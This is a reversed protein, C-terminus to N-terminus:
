RLKDLDVGAVEFLINGNLGVTVPAYTGNLKAMEAVIARVEKQADLKPGDDILPPADLGPGHVIKGASLVYHDSNAIRMAREYLDDLVANQEARLAKVTHATVENMAQWYLEHATTTAIGLQEAIHRFPTGNRRLHVIQIKTDERTRTDTNTPPPLEDM